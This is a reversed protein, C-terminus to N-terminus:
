MVASLLGYLFVPTAILFGLGWAFSRFPTVGFSYFLFHLLRLIVIALSSYRTFPNSIESVAAILVLPAFVAIGEVHNRVIRTLRNVLESQDGPVSERNSLAYKAGYIRDIAIQQAFIAVFLIITVGTLAYIEYAM